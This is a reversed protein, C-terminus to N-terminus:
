FDTADKMGNQITARDTADCASLIIWADTKMSAFVVSGVGETASQGGIHLDISTPLDGLDLGGTAIETSNAYLKMTAGKALLEGTAIFPATPFPNENVYTGWRQFRLDNGGGGNENMFGFSNQGFEHNTAGTERQATIRAGNAGSFEAISLFHWADNGSWTKNIESMWHLTGSDFEIMAGGGTGSATLMTGTASTIYPRNSHDSCELYNGTDQCYFRSIRGRQSAGGNATLFTVIAAFDLVGDDLGIDASATNANNVVRIVNGSYGTYLEYLAFARFVTTNPVNEEDLLGPAPDGPEVVNTINVTQTAGASTGKSNTATVSATLNTRTERDFATEDDVLLPITYDPVSGSLTGLKVAGSVSQSAIATGTVTYASTIHITGITDGDALSQAPTATPAHEHISFTEATVVPKGDAIAITIDDFWSSWGGDNQARADFTINGPYTITGTDVEVLGAANIKVANTPSVNRLEWAWPSDSATLTVVDWGSPAGDPVDAITGPDDVVPADPATEGLAYHTSLYPTAVDDLVFSWGVDGQFNSLRINPHAPVNNVYLNYADLARDAKDSDNGGLPDAYWRYMLAMGNIALRAYNGDYNTGPVAVSWDKDVDIFFDRADAVDTFRAAYQTPGDGSTILAIPFQNSGNNQWPWDSGMEHMAVTGLFCDDMIDAAYTSGQGRAALMYFVAARYYTQFTGHYQTELTYGYMQGPAWTDADMAGQVQQIYDVNKTLITDLFTAEHSGDPAAYLADSITRLQWISTRLQAAGGPFQMGNGRWGLIQKDGSYTGSARNGRWGDWTACTSWGAIAALRDWMWREGSTIYPVFNYGPTHSLLEGFENLDTGENADSEYGTEGTQIPGPCLASTPDNSESAQAGFQNHMKTYFHTDLWTDHQSDYHNIPVYGSCECWHRSVKAAKFSNTMLWQIHPGGQLAIDQGEGGGAHFDPDFGIYYFPRGFNANDLYTSQMASEVTAKSPAVATRYPGLAKTAILRDLSHHISLKDAHTNWGNPNSATHYKEHWKRYQVQNVTRSTQAVGDLTVTATYKVRGHDVTPKEMSRDNAFDVDLSVHGDAWATVDVILRMSSSALLGSTDILRVQACHTGSMYYTPSSLAAVAAKIDYTYTGVMGAPSTFVLQVQTTGLAAVKTQLNVAPGQAPVGGPDTTTLTLAATDGAAISAHYVTVLAHKVSDDSHTSLVNVQARGKQSGAITYVTDSASLEGEEFVMAFAANGAALSSGGVNELAMGTENLGGGGGGESIDTVNVTVSTTDSGSANSASIGLTYSTTTEYDLLAALSIRITSGAMAISFRGTADGSTISVSTPVGGTYAVDKVTDSISANEAISASQGDTLNPPTDAIDTVTIGVNVTSSNGESNTARIGLTYSALTEYDLAALTTIVGASSIAFATGTNGSQISFSTPTGGTTLVTGVTAGISASEALSFSQGGTVAPVAVDTVSIGLDKTDSGASNTLTISLTYSSLTEYDLAGAVKLTGDATISFKAGTNGSNITASTPAGGTRPIVGVTDGVSAGESVSLTQGPTIVPATVTPQTTTSLLVRLLSMRRRRYGRM